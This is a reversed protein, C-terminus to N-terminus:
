DSTRCLRFLNSELLAPVVRLKPKSCNILQKIAPREMEAQFIVGSQCLQVKDSIEKGNLAPDWEAVNIDTQQIFLSRALYNIASRGILSLYCM